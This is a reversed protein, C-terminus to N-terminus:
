PMWTAFSAPRGALTMSARLAPAPSARLRFVAGRRFAEVVQRQKRRGRAGGGGCASAGISGHGRREGREIRVLHRRALRHIRKVPQLFLGRLLASRQYHVAERGDHGAKHRADVVLARFFLSTSPRSSGPWSTQVM